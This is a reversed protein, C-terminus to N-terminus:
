PTQIRKMSLNWAGSARIMPEYLKELISQAMFDQLLFWREFLAALDTIAM